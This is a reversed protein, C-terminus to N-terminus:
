TFGRKFAKSQQLGNADLNTLDRKHVVEFDYQQLLLAWRTIKGTIM